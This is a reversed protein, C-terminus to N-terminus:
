WEDDYLEYGGFPTGSCNDIFTMSLLHQISSSSISTDESPTPPAVAATPRETSKM